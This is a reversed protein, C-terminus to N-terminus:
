HGSGAEVARDLPLLDEYPEQDAVPVSKLGDPTLRVGLADRLESLGDRKLLLVRLSNRQSRNLSQMLHFAANRIM